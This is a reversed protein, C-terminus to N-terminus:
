GDSPVGALYADPAELISACFSSPRPIVSHGGALLPISKVDYLRMAESGSIGTAEAALLLLRLLSGSQREHDLKVSGRTQSARADHAVICDAIVTVASGPAPAPSGMAASGAVIAIALAVWLLFEFIRKLM